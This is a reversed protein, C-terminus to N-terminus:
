TIALGHLHIQGVVPVNIISRVGFRTGGLLAAAPILSTLALIALGEGCGIGVDYFEMELTDILLSLDKDISLFGSLM